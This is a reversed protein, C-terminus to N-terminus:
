AEVERIVIGHCAFMLRRKLRYVANRCTAPSKVDEVVLAGDEDYDFDATYACVTVGNVILRYRPHIRLTCIAGARLLLLLERYRRLEALSDFTFGDEQVRKNGYKRGAAGRAAESAGLAGTTDTCAERIM